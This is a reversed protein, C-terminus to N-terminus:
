KNEKPRHILYEYNQEKLEEYVDEYDTAWKIHLVSDYISNEEGKKGPLELNLAQEDEM